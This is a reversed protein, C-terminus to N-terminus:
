RETRSAQLMDENKTIRKEVRVGGAGWFFGCFFENRKCHSSKKLFDNGKKDNRKLMKMKKSINEMQESM